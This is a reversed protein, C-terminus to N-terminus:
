PGPLGAEGQGKISSLRVTKANPNTHTVQIHIHKVPLGNNKPDEVVTWQITFDGDGSPVVHPNVAEDEDLQPDEYPLALLQEMRDVALTAAETQMGASANQSISRIQMSTVALIGIAFISMAVLIEILTFGQATTQKQNGPQM